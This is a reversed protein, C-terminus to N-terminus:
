VPEDSAHSSNVTIEYGEPGSLTFSDHIAGRTIRSAKMGYARWDAHATDVDDVMLDFPAQTGAAVRRQAPRLLLHTGGRLELVSVHEDRFIPRMGLKEFYESADAVDKVTMRIHGIALPPRPDSKTAM